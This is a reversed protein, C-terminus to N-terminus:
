SQEVVPIMQPLRRFFRQRFLLICIVGVSISADAINFIDAFFEFEKGGVM